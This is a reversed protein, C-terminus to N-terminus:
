PSIQMIMPIDGGMITEPLKGDWKEAQVKQIELRRSELVQPTLSQSIIRNAEAEAEAELLLAQAASEAAAVQKEGEARTMEVQRRTRDAEQTAAQAEEMSVKIRDPLRIESNLTVQTIILGGENFEDMVKREACTILEDKKEGYIDQVTYNSESACVNLANRTADRVRSDVVEHLYPGYTHIMNLIGEDSESNIKYGIGIDVNVPQGDIGSFTISEDNPSGEAPDKTWVSRQVRTPIQYYDVCTGDWHRGSRLVNYREADTIDGCVRASVTVTGPQVTHCGPSFLVAIM